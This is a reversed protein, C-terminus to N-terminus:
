LVSRRSRRSRRSSRRLHRRQRRRWSPMSHMYGFKKAVRTEASNRNAYFKKTKKTAADVAELEAANDRQFRAVLRKEYKQLKDWVARTEKEELARVMACAEKRSQTEAKKWKRITALSKLLRADKTAKATARAHHIAETRTIRHVEEEEMPEDYDTTGGDDNPDYRCIPCRVDRTLHSVMCQGHFKHGCGFEVISPCESPMDELCIVCREAQMQWFSCRCESVIASTTRTAVM